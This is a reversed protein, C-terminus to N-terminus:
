FPLRPSLTHTAGADLLSQTPFLFCLLAPLPPSSSPRIPPAAEAVLEGGESLLGGRHRAQETDPGYGM